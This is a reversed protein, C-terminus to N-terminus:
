YKEMFLNHTHLLLLRRPVPLNVKYALAEQIGTTAWELSSIYLPNIVSGRRKMKNRLENCGKLDLEEKERGRSFFVQCVVLPWQM